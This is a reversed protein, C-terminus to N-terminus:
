LDYTVNPAWGWVHWDRSMSRQIWWCALMIHDLGFALGGLGKGVGHQLDGAGSSDHQDDGVEDVDPEHAVSYAMSSWCGSGPLLCRSVRRACLVMTDVFGHELIVLLAVVVGVLVGM